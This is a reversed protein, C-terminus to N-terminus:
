SKDRSIMDYAILLDHYLLYLYFFHHLYVSASYESYNFYSDVIKWGLRKL